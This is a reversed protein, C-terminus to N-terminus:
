RHRNRPVFGTEESVDAMVVVDSEPDAERLASLGPSLQDGLVLVLRSVM